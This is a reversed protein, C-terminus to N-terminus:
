DCGPVTFVRDEVSVTFTRDEAAVAFARDEALVDFTRDESIVDFVRDEVPVDFFCAEDIIVVGIIIRGGTTLLLYAGDSKRLYYPTESM